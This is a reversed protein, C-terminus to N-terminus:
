AARVGLERCSDKELAGAVGSSSRQRMAVVDICTCTHCTVQRRRRRCDRGRSWRCPRGGRGGRGNSRRSSCGSGLRCTEMAAIPPSPSSFLACTPSSLQLLPLPGRFRGSAGAARRRPLGRVARLAARARPRAAQLVGPREARLYLPGCRAWRGGDYSPTGLCVKPELDRVVHRAMQTLGSLAHAYDEAQAASLSKSHRLITGRHDVIVYGEVGGMLNIRALTEEIASM